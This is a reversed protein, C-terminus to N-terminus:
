LLDADTAKKEPRKKPLKMSRAVTRPDLMVISIEPSVQVIDNRTFSKIATLFGFLSYVLKKCFDTQEIIITVKRM